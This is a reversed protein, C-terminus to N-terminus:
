KLVNSYIVPTVAYINLKTVAPIYIYKEILPHYAKKRISIFQAVHIGSAIHSSRDTSKVTRYMQMGTSSHTILSTCTKHQM